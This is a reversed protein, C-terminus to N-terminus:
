RGKPPAQATEQHLVALWTNARQRWATTAYVIPPLPQGNVTGQQMLKYTVLAARRGLPIVKMDTTSHGTIKITTWSSVYASVPTWGSDDVAVANPAVLAKLADPTPAEVAKLLAEERDRIARDLDAARGPRKQAFASTALCLFVCTLLCRNM